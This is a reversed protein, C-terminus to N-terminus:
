SRLALQCAQKTIPSDDRWRQSHSRLVASISGQCVGKATMSEEAKIWVTRGCKEEDFLTVM